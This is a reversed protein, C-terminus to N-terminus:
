VNGVQWALTSTIPYSADLEAHGAYTYHVRPVNVWTGTTRVEVNTLRVDVVGAAALMVEKLDTVRVVGGFDLTRLYQRLAFNVAAQVGALTAQGDYVVSGTLRLRDAPATLVLVQVPPRLEQFYDNVAILEAPDLPQLGSGAAKAVKITVQNALEVVAAHTVIRSAPDDVTYGADLDTFVLVHGMQFRKARSVFWRVTGYHGDKALNEVEVKFLDFLDQQLKAAYAFLRMVLRHIDVKSGSSMDSQLQAASDPNPALGALAADSAAQTAMSDYITEVTTM